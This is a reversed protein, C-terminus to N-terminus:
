PQWRYGCFVCVKVRTGPVRRYMAHRCIRQLDQRTM